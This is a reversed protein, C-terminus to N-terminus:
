NSRSLLCCAPVPVTSAYLQQLIGEAKCLLWNALRTFNVWFIWMCLLHQLTVEELSKFFFFFIVLSDYPKRGSTDQNLVM